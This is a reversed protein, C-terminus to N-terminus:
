IRVETPIVTRFTISVRRGREIKRGQVMDAQRAPIAHKWEFRAAGQMVLLSRAALYVPISLTFAGNTRTFQMICGSGLSLSIITDGFCPLCDIHASIGQGAQYENVIIQDPIQAMLREGHLRRALGDAWSPLPGLYMEPTVSRSKYDYRYGYHQVRRRLEDSWPAADITALLEAEITPTIYDTILTLGEISFDTPLPEDIMFPEITQTIPTAAM